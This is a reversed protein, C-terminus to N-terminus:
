KAGKRLNCLAHSPRCNEITDEGGNTLAILHDRHLAREWGPSGARRNPVTLDIPEDCIHCDTGYLALLEDNTFYVSRVARIKKSRSHLPNKVRRRESNSCPQCLKAQKHKMEGCSPCATNKRWAKQKAAFAKPDSERQAKATAAIREKNRQQYERAKDPDYSAKDRARFKDPNAVRARRMYERNIENKRARKADANDSLSSM